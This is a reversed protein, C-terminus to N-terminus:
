HRYRRKRYSHGCHFHPESEGRDPTLLYQPAYQDSEDRSTLNSDKLEQAFVRRSVERFFGAM